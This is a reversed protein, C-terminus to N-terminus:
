WTYRVALRGVFARAAIGLALPVQRVNVELGLVLERNGSRETYYAGVAPGSGSGVSEKLQYGASCGGPLELLRLTRQPALERLLVEIVASEVGRPGDGPPLLGGPGFFLPGAIPALPPRQVHLILRRGGLVARASALRAERERAADEAGAAGAAWCPVLTAAVLAGVATSLQKGAVGM